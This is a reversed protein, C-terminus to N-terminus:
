FEGLVFGDNSSGLKQQLTLETNDSIFRVSGDALLLHGGGTHWSSYGEMCQSHGNASGRRNRAQQITYDILPQNMGCLIGATNFLVLFSSHTRFSSAWTWYYSDNYNSALGVYMSEGVLVQNSSGDRIGTLNNSSNMHLPGNNWVPRINANVFTAPLTASPMNSFCPMMPNNSYPQNDASTNPPFTGDVAPQGTLPDTKFAPGGGGMCAFYNITYRDSNYVPSSPCRYGTPSDLTQVVYNPSPPNQHDFRGFFPMGMNFQNYLSTQEIYPLILM